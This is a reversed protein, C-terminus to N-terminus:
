MEPERCHVVREGVEVDIAVPVDGRYWVWVEFELGWVGFGLDWVGFGLVWVGFGLVGFGL